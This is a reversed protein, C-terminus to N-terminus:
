PRSILISSYIALGDARHYSLAEGGTWVCLFAICMGRVPRPLCLSINQTSQSPDSLVLRQGPRSFTKEWIYLMNTAKINMLHNLFPQFTLHTRHYIVSTHHSTPLPGSVPMKNVAFSSFFLAFLALFHHSLPFSSHKNTITVSKCLAHAHVNVSECMTFLRIPNTYNTLRVYVLCSFM